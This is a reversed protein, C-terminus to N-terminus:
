GEHVQASSEVIFRAREYLEDFTLVEPSTLQRRFLEFSSYKPENIGLETTFEALNGVIVISRPRILFSSEGTPNGHDDRSDLRQGIENEAREVTKQIQAIARVLDRSPAWVEPRYQNQELLCTNHTKIEAFCLSSIRGRTRLLSDVRKGAGKISSGAVIQELKEEGLSSTFVFFLGYGFIWSNGEFFRQWVDEDRALSLREKENAFFSAENLLRDFRDLEQRRYTLAIIDRDTIESEAVRAILEPDAALLTRIADGTLGFNHLDSSDLRVRDPGAFRATRILVALDLLRGIEDGALTFFAEKRPKERSTDFRQVVLKAIGRSDVLFLAKVEEKGTPTTRLVVEGEVKLFSEREGEEFVRSVFRAGRIGDLTKVPFEKSFYIRDPKKGIIYEDDHSM